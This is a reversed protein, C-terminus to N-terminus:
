KKELESDQALAAKAFARAIVEEYAKLAPAEAEDYAKLARAIVEEYAKLAPAEAEEYSKLAPARAENYAKLAPARAENYAKLAPARAEDYATPATASLFIDAAWDWDFLSAVAIARNVTVIVSNGFHKKFLAIQDTCANLKELQEVTIKM